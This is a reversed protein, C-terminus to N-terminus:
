GEWSSPSRSAPASRGSPSSREAAAQGPLAAPGTHHHADTGDNGRALREAMVAPDALDDLVILWPRTTERLWGLFSAAVAEAAGAAWDGPAQGGATGTGTGTGGGRADRGGGRRAHVARRCSQDRDVWVLIDISESAWLDEAYAVAAQTKGSASLWDRPFGPLGPVRAPALSATRGPRLAEALANSIEARTIHGDALPLGRGPGPEYAGTVILGALQGPIKHVGDAGHVKHTIDIM